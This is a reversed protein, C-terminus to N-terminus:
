AGFASSYAVDTFATAEHLCSRYYEKIDDPHDNNKLARLEKIIEGYYVYCAIVVSSLDPYLEAHGKQESLVQVSDRYRQLSDTYEDWAPQSLSLYKLLECRFNEKNIVTNSWHSADNTSIFLKYWDVFAIELFNNFIVEWYNKNFDDKYKFLSKHAAINRLINLIKAAQASLKIIQDNM